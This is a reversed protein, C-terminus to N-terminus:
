ESKKWPEIFERIVSIRSLFANDNPPPFNSTFVVDTWHASTFGNKVEVALPYPDGVRLLIQRHAPKYEFDDFLIAKQNTYESSFWLTNNIPPVAYIDPFDVRASYSKGSRPVGWYYHVRVERHSSPFMLHIFEKIQKQRAFVMGPHSEALKVLDPCAIVIRAMADLDTRKGQKSSVFDGFEQVTDPIASDTKHCYDRAQQNKPALQPRVKATKPIIGLHAEAQRYTYSAKFQVYGQWHHKKTQPCIEEQFICYLM